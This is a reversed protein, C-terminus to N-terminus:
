QLWDPLIPYRSYFCEGKLLAIAEERTKCDNLNERLIDFRSRWDAIVHNLTSWEDFLDHETQEAM